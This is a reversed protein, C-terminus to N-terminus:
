AIILLLKCVQMINICTYRLQEVEIHIFHMTKIQLLSVLDKLFLWFCSIISNWYSQYSPWQWVFLNEDDTTMPMCTRQKQGSSVCGNDQSDYFFSDLRWSNDPWWTDYRHWDTGIKIDWHRLTEIDKDRRKHDTRM